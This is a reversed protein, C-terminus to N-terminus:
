DNGGVIIEVRRNIAHAQDTGSTDLPMTEGMGYSSMRFDDVGRKNLQRLVEEARKVSLYQNTSLTGVSDTHGIIDIHIDENEVLIEAIADLTEVSSQAVRIEAFEFQINDLALLSDIAAQVEDTDNGAETPEPKKIDLELWDYKSWEDLLNDYEDSDSVTGSLKVKDGDVELKGEILVDYLDTGLLELKSLIDDSINFDEDITLGEVKFIDEVDKASDEDLNGSINRDDHNWVLVFGGPVKEPITEGPEEEIEQQLQISDDYIIKVNRVGQIEEIEDASAEAINESMNGPVILYCNRGNWEMKTSELAKYSDLMSAEDNLKDEINGFSWFPVAITILTFVSITIAIWIKRKKVNM